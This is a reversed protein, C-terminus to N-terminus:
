AAQFDAPTKSRQHQLQIYIAWLRGTAFHTKLSEKVMEEAEHFRGCRMRQMVAEFQIKWEGKSLNKTINM